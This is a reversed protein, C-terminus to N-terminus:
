NKSHKMLAIGYPTIDIKKDKYLHGIAKKFDRKSCAFVKQITDPDTKDSYPLTGDADKLANLITTSLDNTRRDARDGIMLDIKLDPRVNKVHATIHQGIRIEQYVENSYIMGNHLNDVICRYGIPTRAIVLADVKDGKTYRPMVNGLFKDTKQSGVIRQTADDLYVYVLYMGGERMDAKQERFPVLLDKATIGWHMFAGVKNVQNVEMFAFEGVQAIPKETTAILRDESDKYVFVEIEDGVALGPTYYKAPLLIETDEGGDLYAGFDVMRNVKLRNTKGIRLM